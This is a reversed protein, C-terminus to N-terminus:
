QLCINDTINGDLHVLYSGVRSPGVVFVGVGGVCEFRGTRAFIQYANHRLNFDVSPSFCTTGSTKLTLTSGHLDDLTETSGDLVCTDAQGDIGLIRGSAATETITGVIDGTCSGTSGVFECDVSFRHLDQAKVLTPSAFLPLAILFVVLFLRKISNLSWM